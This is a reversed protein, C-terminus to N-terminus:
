EVEVLGIKIAQVVAETRSSVNLKAFINRLHTQVTRSSLDLEAAIMSNTLGLAAFKMVELERASIGNKPASVELNEVTPKSARDMLKQMVQPHLVPEGAHIARVAHLVEEAPVDKLLYGGAGADIMAYVYEDDDYGTLVLISTQPWKRKIERTAEIGNTNPMAIDLVAVDPRLQGVLSIAEDGDAAEGVVSFDAERELLIRTGERVVAHDDALVIRISEREVNDM